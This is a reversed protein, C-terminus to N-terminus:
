PAYIRTVTTSGVTGNFFPGLDLIIARDRQLVDLASLIAAARPQKSLSDLLVKTFLFSKSGDPEEVVIYGPSAGSNVNLVSKPVLAGNVRTAHATAFSVGTATYLQHLAQELGEIATERKKAVQASSHARAAMLQQREQPPLAAEAAVDASTDARTAAAVYTGQGANDERDLRDAHKTVYNDTWAKARLWGLEEVIEGVTAALALINRTFRERSQVTVFRALNADLRARVTDQHTLIYDVLRPGLHGHNADLLRSIRIHNASSTLLTPGEIPIGHIRAAAAAAAEADDANNIIMRRLDVNATTFLLTRWDTAEGLHLGNYQSAKARSVGATLNMAMDRLMDQTWLTTEDITVPLNKYMALLGFIGRVTSNAPTNSPLHEGWLANIAKLVASKGYGSGGHMACMAAPFDLYQMLPSALGALIAFRAESSAGPLEYFRLADLQGQLTGKQGLRVQAQRQAAADQLYCQTRQGKGKYVWEGLIFGGNKTWGFRSSCPVIKASGSEVVQTMYSNLYPSVGTTLGMYVGHSTLTTKLSEIKNLDFVSTIVERTGLMGDVRLLLGRNDFSHQDVLMGVAAFEGAATVDKDGDKAAFAIRKLNSNVTSAVAKYRSSASYQIPSTYDVGVIDSVYGDEDIMGAVAPRVVVAPRSRDFTLPSGKDLATADFVPCNKCLSRSVGLESCLTACRVGTSGAEFAARERDYKRDTEAPDYRQGSKGIYNKSMAHAIARGRAANDDHAAVRLVMRWGPETCASQNEGAYRLVPCSKIVHAADVPRASSMSAALSSAPTSRTHATGVPQVHGMADKFAYLSALRRMPERTSMSPHIIIRHHNRGPKMNTTFPLRMLAVVNSTVKLDIFLRPDAHEKLMATFMAALKASQAAPVDQGYSWHLHLGGGTLVTWTPLDFNAKACFAYVAPIAESVTKFHSAHDRVDVDLKLGRCMTASQTKHRVAKVASGDFSACLFYGTHSALRDAADLIGDITDHQSRDTVTREALFYAGTSPLVDQLFARLDTRQDTTLM